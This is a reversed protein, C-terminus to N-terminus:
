RKFYDPWIKAEIKAIRKHQHMLLVVLVVQATNAGATIIPILQEIM